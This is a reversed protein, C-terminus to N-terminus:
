HRGPDGRKDDVFESKQRLDGARWLYLVLLPAKTTRMAHTVGSAHHIVSGAARVDWGSNGRRWEADGSLPVYVEEAVHRHPPYETEPGLLLFGVALTESSIPGRLGILETWGYRDLFADGIEASSYTQAWALNRALSGLAKAVECFEPASNGVAADLWQLVPLGKPTTQRWRWPRSPWLALFQDVTPDGIGSLSREILSMFDDVFKSDTM